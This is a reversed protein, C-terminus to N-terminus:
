SAKAINFGCTRRNETVLQHVCYVDFSVTLPQNPNQAVKMRKMWWGRMVHNKFGGWNIGFMTMRTLNALTKVETFGTRRFMARGSMPDLDLGVNDNQIKALDELALVMPLGMYLGYQDKSKYDPILMNDLPAQFDVESMARRLRLVIDSESINVFTDGYSKWGTYVAPDIGGVTTTSGSYTGTFGSVTDSTATSTYPLWYLFGQPNEDDAGANTAYGWGDTEIKATLSIMAQQERNTVHDFIQFSGQNFEEELVDFSFDTRDNRLQMTGQKTFDGVGRTVTHFAGFSRAATSGQVNVNFRIDKGGQEKVQNEKVIRRAYPYNRLLNPDINSIKKREDAFLVATALDQIQYYTAM